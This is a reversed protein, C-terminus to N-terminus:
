SGSRDSSRVAWVLEEPSGGARADPQGRQGQAVAGGGVLREAVRKGCEIRPPHEERFLCGGALFLSEAAECPHKAGKRRPFRGGFEQGVGNGLREADDHSSQVVRAM